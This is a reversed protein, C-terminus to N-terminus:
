YRLETVSWDDYNNEGKGVYRVLATFNKVVNEGAENKYHYTAQFRFGNNGYRTHSTEELPPFRYSLRAKLNSKIHMVAVDYADSETPAYEARNQKELYTAAWLIIVFLLLAALCGARGKWDTLVPLVFRKRSPAGRQLSRSAGDGTPYGFEPTHSPIYESANLPAGCRPCVAARDSVSANCEPCNVLAM